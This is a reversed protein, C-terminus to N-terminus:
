PRTVLRIVPGTVQSNVEGLTRAPWFKCALNSKMGARLEVMLPMSHFIRQMSSHTDPDPLLRRVCVLSSNRSVTAADPDRWNFDPSFCVKSNLKGIGGLAAGDSFNPLLLRFHVRVARMSIGFQGSQVLTSSGIMM